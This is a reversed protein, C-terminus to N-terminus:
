LGQCIPPVTKGALMQRMPALEPAQAGASPGLAMAAQDCLVAAQNIQAAEPSNGMTKAQNRLATCCQKVHLQTASLGPGTWKPKAADSADADAGADDELPALVTDTQSPTPTPTPAPAADQTPTDKKPCGLLFIPMLSAVGLAVLTRRAGFSPRNHSM